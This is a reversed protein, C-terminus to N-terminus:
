VWLCENCKKDGVVGRLVEGISNAGDGGLQADFPEADAVVRRPLARRDNDSRWQGIQGYIKMRGLGFDSYGVVKREHGQWDYKTVTRRSDVLYRGLRKHKHWHARTLKAM